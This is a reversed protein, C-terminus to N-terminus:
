CLEWSLSLSQSLLFPPSCLPLGSRWGGCVPVWVLCVCTHMCVFLPLACVTFSPTRCWPPGERSGLALCVAKLQRGQTLHLNLLAQPSSVPILLERIVGSWVWEMSGIHDGM